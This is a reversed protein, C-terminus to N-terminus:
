AAARPAAAGAGPRLSARRRRPHRRRRSRAVALALATALGCPGGGILAIDLNRTTLTPVITAVIAFM